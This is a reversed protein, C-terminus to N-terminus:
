GLQRLVDAPATYGAVALAALYDSPHNLNMLTQSTPDVDHWEAPSVERTDSQAFLFFPRLRNEALLREIRPLVSPRYVAALPHHFEGDRPVAIDHEGLLEFMRRVFGPVLLPVDCSTVYAADLKAESAATLGAALAELPGRGERRDRAITVDAPLPPLEQEPAAVIVIQGVVEGLLRVVRPLMLEDGFPLSLKPLGM